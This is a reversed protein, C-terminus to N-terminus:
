SKSLFKHVTDILRELDGTEVCAVFCSHLYILRDIKEPQSKNTMIDFAMNDYLEELIDKYAFGMYAPLLDLFQEIIEKQTSMEFGKKLGSLINCFDGYNQENLITNTSIENAKLFENINHALAGIASNYGGVDVIINDLDNHLFSVLDTEAIELSPAHYKDIYRSLIENYAALKEEETITPNDSVTYVAQRMLSSMIIHRRHDGPSVKIKALLEQTWEPRKRYPKFSSDLAAALEAYDKFNRIEDEECWCAFRMKRYNLARLYKRIEKWVEESFTLQQNNLLIM